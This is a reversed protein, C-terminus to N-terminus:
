GDAAFGIATVVIALGQKLHLKARDGAGAAHTTFVANPGDQGRSWPAEVQAYAGASGRYVHLFDDGRGEATMGTVTVQISLDAPSGELEFHLSGGPDIAVATLMPPQPLTPEQQAPDLDRPILSWTRLAVDAM